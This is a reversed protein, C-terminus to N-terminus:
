LNSHPNYASSLRHTIGLTEMLKWLAGSVFVQAGDTALEEPVGYTCCYSRLLRILEEASGDKCQTVVPWGSYRDVVVVYCKGAYDFYDAVVLQFPYDPMWLKVPPLAPQSPANSICRGCTDRVRALDDSVGPWWVSDAARLAM